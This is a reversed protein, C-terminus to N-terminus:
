STVIRLVDSFLQHNTFKFCKTHLENEPEEPSTTESLKRTELKAAERWILEFTEQKLSRQPFLWSYIM